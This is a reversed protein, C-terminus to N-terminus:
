PSVVSGSSRHEGDALGPTHGFCVTSTCLAVSGGAGRAGGWCSPARACPAKAVGYSPESRNWQRSYRDLRHATQPTAAARRTTQSRPAKLSSQGAARRCKRM